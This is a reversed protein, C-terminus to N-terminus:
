HKLAMPFKKWSKLKLFNPEKTIYASDKNTPAYKMLFGPELNICGFSGLKYFYKPDNVIKKRTGIQSVAYGHIGIGDDFLGKNTIYLIRYFPTGMLSINDKSNEVKIIGKGAPTTMKGKNYDSYWPHKFSFFNWNDGLDRGRLGKIKDIVNHKNDIVYFTSNEKSFVFYFSHYNAWNKNLKNNKLLLEVDSPLQSYSSIPLLHLLLIIILNFVQFIIKLIRIQQIPSKINTM